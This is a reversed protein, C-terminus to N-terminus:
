SKKEASVSYKAPSKLFLPKCDECCFYYKYGEYEATPTNKTVKFEENSVACKVWMTKGEVKVVFAPLVLKKLYQEPDKQFPEACGPCCHYYRKGNVDSFSTADEVNGHNGMVPCVFREKGDKTLYVNGKTVNELNEAKKVSSNWDQQTHGDNGKKMSPCTACKLAPCNSGAFGILNVGVLLFMVLLVRLM